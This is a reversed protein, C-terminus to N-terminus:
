TALDTKEFSVEFAMFLLCFPVKSFLWKPFSPAKRISGKHVANQYWKRPGAELALKHAVLFFWGTIEYGLYQKSFLNKKTQKIKTTKNTGDSSRQLFFASNSTSWNHSVFTKSYIEITKILTNLTLEIEFIEALTFHCKSYIFVRSNWILRQNWVTGHIPEQSM